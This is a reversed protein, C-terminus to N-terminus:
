NHFLSGSKWCPLCGGTFKLQFKRRISFGNESIFLSDHILFFNNNKKVPLLKDTQLQGGKTIPLKMSLSKIYTNLYM